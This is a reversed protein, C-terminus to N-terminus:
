AVTPTTAPSSKSEHPGHFEIRVMLIFPLLYFGATRALQCEHDLGGAARTLSALPLGPPGHRDRLNALGSSAAFRKRPRGALARARMTRPRAVSGM